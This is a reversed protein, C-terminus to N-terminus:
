NSQKYDDFASKIKNAFATMTKDEVIDIHKGKASPFNMPGIRYHHLLALKPDIIRETYGAWLKYPFHIDISYAAEVKYMAKCRIKGPPLPESPRKFSTQTMFFPEKSQVARNRGFYVHQFLYAGINEKPTKHDQKEITNLLFKWNYDSTRSVMFEDLDNVALYKVQLKNRYLCDNLAVRQMFYSVDLSRPYVWPVLEVIGLSVYHDMLERVHEGMSVQGMDYFTIRTAGLAKHIEIFELMPVIDNVHNYLPSVCVGFDEREQYGRDDPVNLVTLYNDPQQCPSPVVSVAFPHKSMSRRKIPCNIFHVTYMDREGISKYVVEYNAEGTPVGFTAKDDYWLICHIPGINHFMRQQGAAVVRVVSSNFNNLAHDLFASFVYIPRDSVNQFTRSEDDWHSPSSIGNCTIGTSPVHLGVHGQIYKDSTVKKLQAREDTALKGINEWIFQDSVNLPEVNYRSSKNFRFYSIILKGIIIGIIALVLYACKSRKLRVWSRKVDHM